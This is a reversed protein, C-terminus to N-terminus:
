YSDWRIQRLKKLKRNVIINSISILRIPYKLNLSVQLQDYTKKNSKLVFPVSIDVSTKVTERMREQINESVMKDLANQFDDDEPCDVRKPGSPIAETESVEEEGDPEAESLQEMAEGEDDSGQTHDQTEDETATDDTIPNTM